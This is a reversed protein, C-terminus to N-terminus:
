FCGRLEITFNPADSQGPDNVRRLDHRCEGLDAPTITMDIITVLKDTRSILVSM